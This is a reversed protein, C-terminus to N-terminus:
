TTHWMDSGTPLPCIDNERATEMAMMLRDAEKWRGDGLSMNRGGAWDVKFIESNSIIQVQSGLVCRLVYRAM